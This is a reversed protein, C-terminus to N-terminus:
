IPGSVKRNNEIYEGPTYGYQEKFSRIFYTSSNFGCRYCVDKITSDKQLLLEAAYKLRITRVFASPNQGTIVQLKTFLNTKSMGLKERLQSISFDPDEVNEIVIKTAKELFVEDLNNTTFERAPALVKSASYKERLQLRSRILNSIRVKLLQMNFPKSLYEDAGTEFGEIKNEMAGKATLMIIPIHCVDLSSKIQRCMEIGDMEPMMIDSVILDPIYKRTKELGDLGNIAEKVLYLSELEECIQKRLTKNDEVVLVVQKSPTKEVSEDAFEIPYQDINGLDYLLAEKTLHSLGYGQELDSVVKVNGMKLIRDGLPLRVIFTSGKQYESEILIEGEHLEVLSKVYNLGIGTGPKSQDVQYFREFISNVEERTLGIGTDTVRVEAYDVIGGAKWFRLINQPKEKAVKTISVTIQGGNNTFKLANSLLNTLIKEYKDVDVWLQLEPQSSVFSLSINKTQALDEFIRSSQESLHVIDVKKVRLLSKGLDIKRFDLLQNVLNLLKWASQQVTHASNRIEDLNDTQQIKDLPHLMLTLPTRFEHSVNVFLSLKLQDLEREKKEHIRKVSFNRLLGFGYILVGLYICYAWWTKWPPPLINIVLSTGTENWVGDNNSAKVRFIYKGAPLNTYTASRKNGIYNWDKDFGEMKYAYQNKESSTFNLAAFELTFVSQKYNLTLEKTRSIHNKLPSNASDGTIVQNFLLFNTLVVNPFNRNDTIKEPDFINFGHESGFFMEGNKTKFQTYLALENSLLGDDKTFVRFIKKKPDFWVIGKDTSIWLNGKKDDLIGRASNAPFGNKKNFVIFTKKNRDMLNLGNPTGVWLNRNKDEYISLIYNDSISAKDSSSNVYREFTHTNRDYRNLGAMTGVWIDGGSDMYVVRIRNDTLSRPNSSSVYHTFIKKTANYVDIGANNHGIWLNGEKDNLLTMIVNSLLGQPNQDSHKLAVFKGTRKEFLNLGGSSTGIWLYGPKADVISFVADDNLSYPDSPNHKYHTFTCTKRDFRSLMGDSKTGIWIEGDRDQYICRVHNSQLGNSLFNCNVRVFPKRYKDLVNVGGDFTGIWINGIHDEYITMPSKTSLGDQAYKDYVFRTITKDGKKTFLLGQGTVAIWRGGNSDFFTQRLKYQSESIFREQNVVNNSVPNITYLFYDTTAAINGETDLSLNQIREGKLIHIIKSTTPMLKDLGKETALWINQKRDKIVFNIRNDALTNNKEPDSTFRTIKGTELNFIYAGKLMTGVFMRKEDILCMSTIYNTGIGDKFKTSYRKFKYTNLDLYTIGRRTGVWLNHNKDEVLCTIGNDILSTSDSPSNILNLFSYGDYRCLGESSGIWVFGDHDQIIAEVYNSPLGEEYTIHKFYGNQQAFVSTTFTAIILLIFTKM